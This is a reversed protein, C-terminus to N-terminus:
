RITAWVEGRGLNTIKVLQGGFRLLTEANAKSECFSLIKGTQIAAWKLAGLVQYAVTTSSFDVIHNGRGTVQEKHNFTYLQAQVQLQGNNSWQVFVQYPNGTRTSEVHYTKHGNHHDSVQETTKAKAIDNIKKIRAKITM